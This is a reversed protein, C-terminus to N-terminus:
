PQTIKLSKQTTHNVYWLLLTVLGASLISLYSNDFSIETTFPDVGPRYFKLYYFTCFAMLNNAFHAAISLWISQGAFMLYGLAMGLVFRPLFTLFQVHIASFLIATVVIALYPNNWWQTLKQQIVGRFLLEECFAPIIVMICFNIIIDKVGEGSLFLRAYENIEKEKDHMWSDVSTLSAPLKMNQNIDSLWDIMPASVIMVLMAIIILYGKSPSQFINTDDEDGVFKFFLISPLFMLGFVQIVQSAKLFAASELLQKGDAVGPIFPVIFSTLVIAVFFGGLILILLYLLQTAPSKHTSSFIMFIQKGM